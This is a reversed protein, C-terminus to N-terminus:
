EAYDYDTDGGNMACVAVNNIQGNADIALAYVYTEDVVWKTDVTLTYSKSVEKGAVIEGLADGKWSKSLMQRAVHHHHYNDLNLGGDKQEGIIGEEIIFIALRYNGTEGSKVRATIEATGTAEDYVSKVAAGCHAPYEDFSRMLAAELLSSNGSTLSVGDRLDILAAPYGGLSFTSFIDTQVSQLPESYEDSDHLAIIHSFEEWEPNNLTLMRYIMKYGEPCFSCWTGTFEMICLHRKFTPVPGVPEAEKATVKVTNSSKGDYSATFTYTGAATATFLTGTFTADEACAIAAASTVDEDGYKATFIVNQGVEVDTKDASLVLKKEAPQPTPEETDSGCAGAFLTTAALAM